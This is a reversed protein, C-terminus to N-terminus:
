NLSHNHVPGGTTQAKVRLFNSLLHGKGWFGNHKDKRQRAGGTNLCFVSIPPDRAAALATHQEGPTM